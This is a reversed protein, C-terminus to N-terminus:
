EDIQSIQQKNMQQTTEDHKREYDWAEPAVCCNELGLDKYIYIYIYTHIHIYM